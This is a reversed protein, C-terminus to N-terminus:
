HRSAARCSGGAGTILDGFISGTVNEVDRFINIDAGSVATGAGLDVVVRQALDVFSVMDAGAGGDVMDSGADPTIWDNGALGRILDAGATGVLVNGLDTGEILNVEGGAVLLAAEAYTLTDDTFQLFEIDDAVVDVGEATFLTMSSVGALATVSTSAVGFVARDIGDGGLLTDNGAGGLLTDDGDDGRLHDDDVGGDLWDNGPSGQLTDNGAGGLLTDDGDDGRLHDGGAGGDLWDNGPGGQITDDGGLGLIFSDGEAGVLIDDGPTGDILSLSADFIQVRVASGSSDDGTESGDTWAVVFRDGALASITPQFQNGATTTNILLEPGSPTGDVAFIQGRVASGSRDASTESWDAWAVVFRGDELATIVPETQNGLTTTNISFENGSPSGDAAFIQGRIDPNATDVGTRIWQTWVVVFRGDALGTIAPDVQSGAKSTNILLEPGLHTGDPSFIQGRVDAFSRDGSTESRDRWAVVFRGEALGTITPEYQWDATTTNVLFEPGDFLPTTM